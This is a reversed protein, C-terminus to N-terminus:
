IPKQLLAGHPVTDSAAPTSSEGEFKLRCGVRAGVGWRKATTLAEMWAKACMIETAVADQVKKKAKVISDLTVTTEPCLRCTFDLCSTQVIMQIM